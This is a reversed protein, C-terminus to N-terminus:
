ASILSAAGAMNEVVVSPSGTIHKGLHRAIVRAYADYGGGPSFGVIVRITKGKFFAEQSLAPASSILLGALAFSFIPLFIKARM